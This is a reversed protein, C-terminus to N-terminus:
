RCEVIDCRGLASPVSEDVSMERKAWVSVVSLWMRWVVVDEWCIGDGIGQASWYGIIGATDVM